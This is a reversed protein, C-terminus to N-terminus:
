LRSLEHARKEAAKIASRFINAFYKKELTKIAAETTGKKSTVMMRLEKPDKGTAEMLATAGKITSMVLKAAQAHSFGRDIAGRLFAEIFYFLYAPGSGSVATVANMMKEEVLIIEGVSRFIDTVKRKNRSTVNRSFCIGSIGQGILAPTNPMVRAVPISSRFFSLINKITKGAAISVVVTGNKIHTKLEDLLKAFDQPKVALLVCSCSKAVSLDSFCDITYKKRFVKRQQPSIEVACLRGPPFIKKKLVGALIAQGMNGAGIVCLDYKKMTQVKRKNM